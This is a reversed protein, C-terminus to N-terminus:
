PGDTTSRVLRYGGSRVVLLSGNIIVAIMTSMVTWAIFEAGNQLGMPALYYPQMPGVLAAVVFVVLLRQSPRGTGLSAWLSTLAVGMAATGIVAPVLILGIFVARHETTIARIGRGITLLVAVLATCGLLHRISLQLGEVASPSVLAIRLGKRRFVALGLAVLAIPLAAPVVFLVEHKFAISGLVWLYLVAALIAGTRKWWGVRSFVLWIGLLGDGGLILSLLLVTVPNPFPRGECFVAALIGAVVHGVLLLGVKTKTSFM